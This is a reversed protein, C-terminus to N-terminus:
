HFSIYSDSILPIYFLRLNKSVKQCALVDAGCDVVTQATALLRDVVFDDVDVDSSLEVSDAIDSDEDWSGALSATFIVITISDASSQQSAADTGRQRLGSLLPLTTTTLTSTASQQHQETIRYGPLHSVEMLTGSQVYSSRAAHGQVCVCFICM